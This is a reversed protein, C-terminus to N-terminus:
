ETRNHDMGSEGGCAGDWNKTAHLLATRERGDDKDEAVVRKHTSKGGVMKRVYRYVIDKSNNQKLLQVDVYPKGRLERDSVGAAGM